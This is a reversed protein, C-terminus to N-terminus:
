LLTRRLWEGAAPSLATIALDRNQGGGALDLRLDAPPLHGAGHKPWEVLLVTPSIALLEDLGLEDIEAPHQIRYLDLHVAQGVALPYCEMLAYTPSPIREPGGLARILARAFTTKGSGLDGHLEIVADTGAIQAALRGAFRNMAAEDLTARYRMIVPESAAM